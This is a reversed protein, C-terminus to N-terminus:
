WGVAANGQLQPSALSGIWVENELGRGGVCDPWTDGSGTHVLLNLDLWCVWRKPAARTGRRRAYALLWQQEVGGSGQAADGLRPACSLLDLKSRREATGDGWPEITIVISRTRSGKFGLCGIPHRGM